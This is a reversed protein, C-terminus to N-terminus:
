FEYDAEITYFTRAGSQYPSDALAAQAEQFEPDAFAAQMMDFYADMSEVESEVVVRNFRGSLDTLVRARRVVSQSSAQEPLSKLRELAEQVRGWKCQFETRVLIM